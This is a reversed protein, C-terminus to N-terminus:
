FSNLAGKVAKVIFNLIGVGLIIGLPIVFVPWLNEVFDMAQSWIQTFDLSLEAM